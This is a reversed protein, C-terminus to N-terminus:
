FPIGEVAHLSLMEGACEMGDISVMDVKMKNIAAKAHRVTHPMVLNIGFNRFCRAHM